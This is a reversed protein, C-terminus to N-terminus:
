IWPIVRGGAGGLAAQGGLSGGVPAGHPWPPRACRLRAKPRAASVQEPGASLVAASPQPWARVKKLADPNIKEALATASAEAATRVAVVKDACRELVSPLLAVLSPELSAMGLNALETFCVCAAERVGADNGDIAAKLADHYGAAKLSGAAKVAEAFAPAADKSALAKTLAESAM